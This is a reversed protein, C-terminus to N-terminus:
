KSIKSVVSIIVGKVLAFLGFIVSCIMILFFLDSSKLADLNRVVFLSIFATILSIVGVMSWRKGSRIRVENKYFGYLQDILVSAQKKGLGDILQQDRVGLEWIRQKQRQTAKGEYPQKEPLAAQFHTEADQSQQKIFACM